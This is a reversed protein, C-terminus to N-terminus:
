CSFVRQRINCNSTHCASPEVIFRTCGILQYGNYLDATGCRRRAIRNVRCYKDLRSLEGGGQSKALHHLHKYKGKRISARESFIHERTRRSDLLLLCPNYTTERIKFQAWFLM